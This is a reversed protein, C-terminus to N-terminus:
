LALARVLSVHVRESLLAPPRAFWGNFPCAGYVLGGVRAELANVAPVPYWRLGLDGFWDFDPHRVHVPAAVTSPVEFIEPAETPDMQVVLPLYDWPGRPGRWGFRAQLMETFALTAPDGVVSGDSRRRAAYRLLQDNWIRPGGEGDSARFCTVFCDTVGGRMAEAVHSVCADFADRNTRVDFRRDILRLEDWHRRNACKPANRWAVRLGHELEDFTHEYTGRSEIEGEIAAWRAAAAEAAVGREASYLEHYEKAERLLRGASTEALDM